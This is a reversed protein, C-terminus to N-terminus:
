FAESPPSVIHLATLPRAGPSCSQWRHMYTTYKRQTYYRGTHDTSNLTHIYMYRTTTFLKQIEIQNAYTYISSDVDPTTHKHVTSVYAVGITDILLLQTM